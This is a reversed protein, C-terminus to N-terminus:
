FERRVTVSFVRRDYDTIPLTSDNRTLAWQPTIRWGPSPLWSAGLVWHAQRDRRTVGFFPDVAGYN